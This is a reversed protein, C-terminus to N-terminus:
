IQLNVWTLLNHPTSRRPKCRVQAKVILEAKPNDKLIWRAIDGAEKATKAM